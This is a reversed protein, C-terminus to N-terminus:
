ANTCGWPGAFKIGVGLEQQGSGGKGCFCICLNHWVRRDNKPQYFDLMRLNRVRLFTVLAFTVHPSICCPHIEGPSIDQKGKASLWMQQVGGWSFQVRTANGGFVIECMNSKEWPPIWCDEFAIGLRLVFRTSILIHLAEAIPIECISTTDLPGGWLFGCM